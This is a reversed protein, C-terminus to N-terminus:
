RKKPQPREKSEKVRAKATDLLRNSREFHGSPNSARMVELIPDAKLEDTTPLHGYRVLAADAWWGFTTSSAPDSPNFFLKAVYYVAQPAVSRATENKSDLAYYLLSIYNEKQMNFRILHDIWRGGDNRTKTLRLIAEFAAPNAAEVITHFIREIKESNAESDEMWSEMQQELMPLVWARHATLITLQVMPSWQGGGPIDLYADPIGDKLYDAVFKRQESEPREIMHVHNVAPEQCMGVCIAFVPLTLKKSFPM